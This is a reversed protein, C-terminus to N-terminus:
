KFLEGAEWRANQLVQGFFSGYMAQHVAILGGGERVFREIAVETERPWRPGNYNIVLTDYDKLAALSLGRPEETVRVKFRERSELINRLSATTEQWVHHPLDAAGTLILVRIPTNSAWCTAAFSTILVIALLLITAFKM